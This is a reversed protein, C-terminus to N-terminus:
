VKAVLEDLETCEQELKLLAGQFEAMTQASGKSEVFLEAEVDSAQPFFRKYLEIKQREDAPGMYFRYDIRGPRLLAPDLNEIVNSTMVFLVNQPAHFGDLVNLLGSLTVALQAPVEAKDDKGDAKAPADSPASRAKGSKMCDIDEFLLISNPPVDNMAKMLSRDTFDGLNVAYISIAFEAAIASVLSTKGTGPPGYLLYGRHYPLGLQRYRQRSARFKRIDRVLREKEGPKLIVSDLMRPLYGEVETWYEDFIYLSSKVRIKRQHCHSIEDVFRKLFEQDRGITRFTLEESRKYSGNKKDESRYFYIIFPRGARWFWHRGPAPIMSIREGRIKTDLDLHRIKKLFEQELFWEKVWTFAADEDNVTIMMTTQRMIWRWLTLPVARLYVGVGGVIMLLLGGSAFQNHGSLISKITEVM